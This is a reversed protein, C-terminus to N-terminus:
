ITPSSDDTTTDALSPDGLIRMQHQIHAITEKITRFIFGVEDDSEFSGLKDIRDLKAAAEAYLKLLFTYFTGSRDIISNATKLESELQSVQSLLNVIIITGVVIITILIGILINILNM